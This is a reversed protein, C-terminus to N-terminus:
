ANKKIEKIVLNKIQNISSEVEASLGTNFEISKPQVGIITCTPVPGIAKAMQYIEALGFGHLSILQDMQKLRSEDARFCVVAGAEKGMEACDIIIVPSEQQLCELVIFADAGADIVKISEIFPTKSLEEIIRPGIGDDGRLENGLGIVQVQL